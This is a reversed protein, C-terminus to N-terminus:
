SRPLPHLIAQGGDVNIQQGTIWGAEDSLLFAIAAAVDEGTGLKQMPNLKSSRAIADPTDTLRGALRSVLLGPNVCNVRIGKDAYTAATSMALAAVAAKASGIGEHNPFGATGVLSGILVAASPQRHQRAGQVFARLAQVATFFNTTMVQQLDDDRTLHLPKILASGVCHAFGTVPGLAAEAAGRLRDAEGTASLDGALAAHTGPLQSALAQLAVDDRASLALSHGQGALRRALATGVTGTAGTIWITAM